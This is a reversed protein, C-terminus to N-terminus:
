TQVKAKPGHNTCFRFWEGAMFLYQLPGVHDPRAMADRGCLHCADDEVPCGTVAWHPAKPRVQANPLHDADCAGCYRCEAVVPVPPPEDSGEIGDALHRVIAQGMPSMGPARERLDAVIAARQDKLAEEFVDALQERAHEGAASEETYFTDAWQRPTKM